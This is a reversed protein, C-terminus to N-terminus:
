SCKLNEIKCGNDIMVSPIIEDPYADLLKGDEFEIRWAPLCEMDFGDSEKTRRLVKFPKEHYEKYDGGCSWFCRAFGEKEYLSYCDEIWEKEQERTMEEREMPYKQEMDKWSNLEVTRNIMNEVGKISIRKEHWM